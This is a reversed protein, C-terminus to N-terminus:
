PSPQTYLWHCRFFNGKPLNVGRPKLQHMEEKLDEIIDARICTPFYQKPKKYNMQLTMIIISLLVM